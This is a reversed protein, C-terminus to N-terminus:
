PKRGGVPKYSPPVTVPASVPKPYAPIPPEEAAEDLEMGEFSRGSAELIKLIQPSIHRAKHDRKKSELKLRYYGLHDTELTGLRVMQALIPIAWGRDADFRQKGGVKRAIEKGSVFSGPWGKLYDVIEKEDCQMPLLDAVLMGAFQAFGKTKLPEPALRGPQFGAPVYGAKGGRLEPERQLRVM